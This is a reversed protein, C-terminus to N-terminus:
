IGAAGIRAEIDRASQRLAEARGRLREEFAELQDPMVTGSGEGLFSVILELLARGGANLKRIEPAFATVGIEEADEVLMETYGLIHNIPTRLDHRFHKLEDGTLPGTIGSNM